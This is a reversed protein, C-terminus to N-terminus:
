FPSTSICYKPERIMLTWCKFVSKHRLEAIFEIIIILEHLSLHLKLVCEIQSTFPHEFSYVSNLENVGRRGLRFYYILNFRM